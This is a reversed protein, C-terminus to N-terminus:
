AIGTNYVDSASQVCTVRVVPNSLHYLGWAGSEAVVNRAVRRNDIGRELSECLCIACLDYFLRLSQELRNFHDNLTEVHKSLEMWKNSTHSATIPITDM